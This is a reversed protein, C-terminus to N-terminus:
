FTDMRRQLDQLFMAVHYGDCVAHHVRVALPLVLKGEREFYKGVTFIPPLWRYGKQLNM